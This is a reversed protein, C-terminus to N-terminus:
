HHRGGHHGGYGGHHGGHHGGGLLGGLFGGGQPPPPYYAAPPAGQQAQQAPQASPRNYYSAEAEALRELEGRDLFIGQCQECQDITVGSREYQRMNSRCKPCTLPDM